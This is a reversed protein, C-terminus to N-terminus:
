WVSYQTTNHFCVRVHDEGEGGEAPRNFTAEGPTRKGDADAGSPTWGCSAVRASNGAREIAFAVPRQRLAVPIEFWSFSGEVHEGVNFYIM